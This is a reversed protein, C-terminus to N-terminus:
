DAKCRGRKERCKDRRSGQRGSCEMARIRWASAGVVPEDDVRRFAATLDRDGDFRGLAPDLAPRVPEAVIRRGRAEDPEFERRLEVHDVVPRRGVEDRHIFRGRISVLTAGSQDLRHQEGVVLREEERDARPTKGDEIGFVLDEATRCGRDLGAVSQPAAALGHLDDECSVPLANNRAFRRSGREGRRCLICPEIEHGRDGVSADLDGDFGVIRRDDSPREPDTVIGGRGDELTECQGMLQLRKQRPDRLSELHGLPARIRQPRPEHM